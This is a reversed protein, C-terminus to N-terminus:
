DTLFDPDDTKHVWRLDTGAAVLLWPGPKTNFLVSDEVRRLTWESGHNSVSNKGKRTKGRMTVM